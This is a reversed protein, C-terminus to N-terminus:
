IKYYEKQWKLTKTNLTFLLSWFIFYPKHQYNSLYLIFHVWLSMCFDTIRDVRSSSLYLYIILKPIVTVALSSSINFYFCRHPILITIQKWIDPQQLVVHRCCLIINVRSFNRSYTLTSKKEQYSRSAIFLRSCTRSSLCTLKCWDLSDMRVPCSSRKCNFLAHKSLATSCAFDEM